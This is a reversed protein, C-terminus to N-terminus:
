LVTSSSIAGDSCGQPAGCHRICSRPRRTCSSCKGAYGHPVVRSPGAPSSPSASSDTPDIFSCAPSFNWSSGRGESSTDLVGLARETWAGCEPLLGAQFFLCASAGTLKAGLGNDGQDSFCWELAARLNSLNLVFFDISEPSPPAWITPSRVTGIAHIMHECHRRAIKLDEGSETLKQWAYARTTELLRYRMGPRAM